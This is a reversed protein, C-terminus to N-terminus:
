FIGPGLIAQWLHRLSSTLFIRITRSAQKEPSARPSTMLVIEATRLPWARLHKSCVLYRPERRPVRAAALGPLDDAAGARQPRGGTAAQDIRSASATPKPLGRLAARRETSSARRNSM